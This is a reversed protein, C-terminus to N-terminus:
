GRAVKSFFLDVLQPDFIKRKDKQIMAMAFQHSYADRYPRKHTLAEYCDCVTVIRAALPIADGVLGDPYGSGNLHEHHHRVITQITEDYNAEHVIAWGFEAHKNMQKKEEDTLKREANVLNPDVLLKGVDHLHAGTEILDV